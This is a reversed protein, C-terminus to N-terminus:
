EMETENRLVLLSQKYDLEFNKILKIWEKIDNLQEEDPNIIYGQKAKFCGGSTNKYYSYIYIRPYGDQSGLFSELLDTIKEGDAM